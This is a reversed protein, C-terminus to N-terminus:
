FLVRLNTKQNTKKRNNHKQKPKPNKQPPPSHQTKNTQPTKRKKLDVLLQTKFSELSPFKLGASFDEASIELPNGWGWM